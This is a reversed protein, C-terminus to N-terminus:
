TTGQCSRPLPIPMSMTGLRKVRVDTRIKYVYQLFWLPFTDNDGNTFLIADPECSQLLNYAILPMMVNLEFNGSLGGLTIASDNGIAQACVQILSEAIVPNVKGPMISSGPEVDPLHIEGFGAKPGSNLLMLNNSIRSLSVALMRISSSFRAFANM